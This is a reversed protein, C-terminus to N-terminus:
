PILTKIIQIIFLVFYWLGIFFLIAALGDCIWEEPSAPWYHWGDRRLFYTTEITAWVMMIAWYMIAKELLRM